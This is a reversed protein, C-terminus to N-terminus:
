VCCSQRERARVARTIAAAASTVAGVVSRPPSPAAMPPSPAHTNAPLSRAQASHAPGAQGAPCCEISRMRLKARCMIASPSPTQTSHPPSQAHAPPAPPWSTKGGTWPAATLKETTAAGRSRECSQPPPLATLSRPRPSGEKPLTARTHRRAEQPRPSPSPHKYNVAAQRKRHTCLATIATGQPHPAPPVSQLTLQWCHTPLQHAEDAETCAPAQKMVFTSTLLLTHHFPAFSIHIQPRYCFM